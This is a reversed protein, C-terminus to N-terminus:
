QWEKAAVEFVANAPDFNPPVIDTIADRQEDELDAINVKATPVVLTMVAPSGDPFFGSMMLRQYVMTAQREDYREPMRTYVHDLRAMQTTQIDHFSQDLMRGFEEGAPLRAIPRGISSRAYDRGFWNVYASQEGFEVCIWGAEGHRYVMLYPRVHALAPSEIQSAAMMWARYTERLLVSEDSWISGMPQQQQYFVWDGERAKLYQLAGHSGTQGRSWVKSRMLLDLAEPLAADGASTLEYRRDNVRFLKQGRMVELQAIHRRVTQRTSNLESVAHSLNLTRALTTFSRIMEFLLPHNTDALNTM